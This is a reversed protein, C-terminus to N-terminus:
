FPLGVLYKYHEPVPRLECEATVVFPQRREWADEVVPVLWFTGEPDRVVWQQSSEDVFLLVKQSRFTTM